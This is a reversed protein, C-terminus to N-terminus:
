ERLSYRELSQFAISLIQMKLMKIPSKSRIQSPMKQWKWVHQDSECDASPNENSQYTFFRLLIKKSKALSVKLLYVYYDKFFLVKM